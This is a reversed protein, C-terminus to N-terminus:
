RMWVARTRRCRARACAWAASSSNAVKASICGRMAAAWNDVGLARCLGGVRDTPMDRACAAGYVPVGLGAGLSSKSVAATSYLANEM